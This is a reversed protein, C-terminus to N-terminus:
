DDKNVGEPTAKPIEGFEFRAERAAVVAEVLEETTVDPVIWLGRM